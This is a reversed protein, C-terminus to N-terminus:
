LLDANGNFESFHASIALLRFWSFVGKPPQNADRRMHVCAKVHVFVTMRVLAHM